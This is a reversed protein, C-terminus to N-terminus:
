SPHFHTQVVLDAGKPYLYALGDPLARVNSGLAWGGIPTFMRSARGTGKFGPEGDEADMKRALGNVDLYFLAHHVISRASPRFEIAKVWKDEAFNLPFVFNRYIDRGEAYLKFPRDM